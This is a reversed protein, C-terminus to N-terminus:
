FCLTWVAEPSTSSGGDADEPLLEYRATLILVYMNKGRKHVDLKQKAQSKTLMGNIMVPKSQSENILPRNLGCVFIAGDKLLLTYELVGGTKSTAVVDFPRNCWLFDKITCGSPLISQIDADALHLYLEGVVLMVIDGHKVLRGSVTVKGQSEQLGARFSLNDGYTVDKAMDRSRCMFSEVAADEVSNAEAARMSDRALKVALESESGYTPSINPISRIPQQIVKRIVQALEASNLDKSVPADRIHGCLRTREDATLIAVGCLNIGPIHIFM